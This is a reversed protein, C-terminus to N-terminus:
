AKSEALFKGTVPATQHGSSDLPPKLVRPRATRCGLIHVGEAAAISHYARYALCPNRCLQGLPKVLDGHITAPGFRLSLM